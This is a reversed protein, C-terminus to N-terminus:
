AAVAEGVISQVLSNPTMVIPTMTATTATTPATNTMLFRLKLVWATGGKGGVVVYVGREKKKINDKQKKYGRM